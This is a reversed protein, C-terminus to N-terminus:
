FTRVEKAQANAFILKCPFARGSIALISPKELHLVDKPFVKLDASWGMASSSKSTQMETLLVAKGRQFKADWPVLSGQLFLENLSKVYSSLAMEHLPVLAWLTQDEAERYANDRVCPLSDPGLFEAALIKESTPYVCLTWVLQSCSEALNTEPNTRVLDLQGDMGSPGQPSSHCREGSSWPAKEATPSLM